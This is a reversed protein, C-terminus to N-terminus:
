KVQKVAHMTMKIPTEQAGDTEEGTDAGITWVTSTVLSIVRTSVDTTVRTTFIGTVAVGDGVSAWVMVGVRFGVMVFNKVTVDVGAGGRM